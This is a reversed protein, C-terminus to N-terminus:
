DIDKKEIASMRVGFAINDFVNMHPFLAYDQFMLGFGRLHPPTNELPIGKWFLSGQDPKEIGAIIQLLTSKGCGSPGLIAVIEGERVEISVGNLAHTEGFSKHIDILTLATSTNLPM